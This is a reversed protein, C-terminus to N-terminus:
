RPSPPSAPAAQCTSAAAAELRAVAELAAVTFVMPYLREYYWLKAFYFGIPAPQAWTGDEVRRLLWDTGTCLAQHRAVARDAEGDIPSVQHDALAEVALATEEVSVPTGGALGNQAFGGGWGGDMQQFYPLQLAGMRCLFDILLSSSDIGLSDVLVSRPFASTVHLARRLQSLAVLVRATGYVYNEDDPLHQNGFWLPAWGAVVKVQVAPLRRVIVGGGDLTEFLYSLARKCSQQVRQQIQKPMEGRWAMWARLAHATIDPSSRDFPLKTWGRCFTPIGGDRNQLDLLWKVGAIAAERVKPDLSNGRLNLAVASQSAPSEIQPRRSDTPSSTLTKLALLAGATDDADPVGGPLDTWAWGGPAAGTYPHETRYQQGLLWDLIRGREEASMVEHISPGLANVALTTVWTALNTDIPWSGDARASKLLFDVGRRAVPHEAHGCGVLSMTVFSTLPTAELFGGNPPQIRELVGLTKARARDRLLRLLPNRTPLHHHRVQGIAILAPLAYSVVPLRLTSFLKQPLAALEFPFQIVKRWAAKGEGLRGALACMTLIPVSFTRDKGYRAIIATILSPVELRPAHHTTRSDSPASGHQNVCWAGRVVTEALWAEARRVAEPWRRVAEPWRQEAGPVAGFAAWCLATTSINSFSLTTDGWGGDANQHEALWQLGSAIARAPTSGAAAESESGRPRRSSAAPVARRWLELATVATATSLASSSLEGEWHGHPGREALLAARAKALARHLRERDLRPAQTPEASVPPAEGPPPRFERKNTARLPAKKGRTVM